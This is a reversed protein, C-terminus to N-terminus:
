LYFALLYFLYCFYNVIAEENKMRKQIFLAFLDGKVKVSNLYTLQLGPMKISDVM